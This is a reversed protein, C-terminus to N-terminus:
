LPFWVSYTTRHILAGVVFWIVGWVCDGLIVGFVLPLARLYARQGGYHLLLVKLMWGVFISSWIAYIMAWSGGLAFGLPHFPWNPVRLRVALLVFAFLMGGATAATKGVNTGPTGLKWGNMVDEFYEKGLRTFNYNFRSTTVGLHQSTNIMILFAAAIGIAAALMMVWSLRRQNIGTREAMKFGEMQVPMPHSGFQRNLFYFGSLLSLERTSFAQVGVTEVMLFEPGLWFIDHVPSGLEARLRTIGISIIFYLVLIIWLIRLSLGAQWSLLSLAIVGLLIGLLATRYSLPEQSDDLESSRGLAKRVVAGLYRRENWLVFLSIGILAGMAQNQLYPQGSGTYGMMGSVVEEIRNVIFFFWCSFALDTPMLMAIAIAYPIFKGGIGAGGLINNWPPDPSLAVSFVQIDHPIAAPLAPFLMNLGNFLAIFSSIVIGVWFLKNRFFSPGSIVALPAQVLPFTLRERETWQKRLIVNVCLMIWFVVLLCGGWVLMPNLWARFIRPQFLSTNGLAFGKLTVPDAVFMWHPLYKLYEVGWWGTEQMARLFPYSITYVIVQLMDGGALVTGINLMIYVTILEGASFAWRPTWRLLLLNFLALMFLVFLSNMLLSFTSPFAAFSVVEIRTIFYANLPLLIMGLLIARLTIGRKRVPEPIQTDNNKPQKM